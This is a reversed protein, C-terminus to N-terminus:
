CIIESSPQNKTVIFFQKKESFIGWIVAIAESVAVYPISCIAGFVCFLNRGLRNRRSWNLNFSKIAGLIFLFLFITLNFLSLINEIPTFAIPFAILVFSNIIQLPMCMWNFLSYAFGIKSFNMKLTPEKVLLYLGQVWRKRQKVFDLFSFPSKEWMEGEIWDFTYGLSAAKVAFYADEAISGNIGNDFSIHKEVAVKCVIFSGKFSYLPKHFTKLSFRLQGLDSAVRVSDGLTTM